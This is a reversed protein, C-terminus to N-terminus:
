KTENYLRKFYYEAGIQHFYGYSDQGIGFICNQAYNCIEMVRKVGMAQALNWNASQNCLIFRAAKQAYALELFDAVELRPITLQWQNCFQWYEKETGAFILDPAYNKLFFYDMYNNRYRETFNLIVKGGVQKKIHEPCEDNLIIWPQSIDFALDPFALPIWGQIAGAPLNVFTKGRIVTFDLDIQQGEYKEFSHVYYQSEVLPSLMKFITDNCCVMTGNTDTTGHTAGNYYAAPLNVQQSVIVKRKTTDYFAKMAGMAALLDGPNVSHKIRTPPLEQM